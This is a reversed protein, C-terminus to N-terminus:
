GFHSLQVAQKKSLRVAQKKSSRVAALNGLIHMRLIYVTYTKVNKLNSLTETGGLNSAMALLNSAMGLPRSAM